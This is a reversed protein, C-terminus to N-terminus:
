AFTLLYALRSFDALIDDKANLLNGRTQVFFDQRTWGQFLHRALVKLVLKHMIKKKEEPMKEQTQPQWASSPM